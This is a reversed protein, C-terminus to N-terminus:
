INEKEEKIIKINTGYLKNKLEILQQPHVAWLYEQMSTMTEFKRDVLNSSM